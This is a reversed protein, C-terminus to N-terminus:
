LDRFVFVGFNPAPANVVTHDMAMDRTWAAWNFYRVADDPWRDMMDTETAWHEAYERFDGWGGCYREEFDSVSPLDGRGEAVYAGSRVWACLASWHEPGVETYVRGWEAAELLGMEHDVPINETDLCWIEECGASLGDADEHITELTIEAVDTLRGLLRRPTRQQLLWSLRGLRPARHRHHHDNHEGGLLGSSFPVRGATSPSDASVGSM